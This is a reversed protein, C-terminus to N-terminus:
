PTDFALDIQRHFAASGYPTRVEEGTQRSGNLLTPYASPAAPSRLRDLLPTRSDAPDPSRRPTRPYSSSGDPSVPRYLSARDGIPVPVEQGTLLPHKM